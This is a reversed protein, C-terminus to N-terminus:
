RLLTEGLSVLGASILVLCLSPFVLFMLSGRLFPRCEEGRRATGIIVLVVGAALIIGGLGFDM